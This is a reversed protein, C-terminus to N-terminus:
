RTALTKMGGAAIPPAHRGASLPLTAHLRPDDDITITRKYPTFGSKVYFPVAAPHDLSCTHLWVRTVDSTWALRLAEQMLFRGAGTGTAEKILGFFVIEVTGALCRDLELLGIEQGTADSLVHIETAALAAALEAEPLVLRSYWLWEAGIRRFLDRYWDINPKPCRSLRWQSPLAPAIDPPVHVEFYTVVAAIQGPPVDIRQGVM